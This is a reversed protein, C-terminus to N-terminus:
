LHAALDNINIQVVGTSTLRQRKCDVDDRNPFRGAFFQGMSMGVCWAAMMVLLTATRRAYFCTSSILKM